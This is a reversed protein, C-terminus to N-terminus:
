AHTRGVQMQKLRTLGLLLTTLTSASPDSEQLVRMATPRGAKGEGEEEAAAGAAGEEGQEGGEANDRAADVDAEEEGDPGKSMSRRGRGRGRVSRLKSKAGTKEGADGDAGAADNNPNPSGPNAAAAEAEEKLVDSSALASGVAGLLPAMWGKSVKCDRDILLSILSSVQSRLASLLGSCSRSLVQTLLHQALGDLMAGAEGAAGGETANNLLAELQQSPGDNDAAVNNAAAGQPRAVNAVLHKSLVLM